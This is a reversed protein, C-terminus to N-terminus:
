SDIRLPTRQMHRVNKIYIDSLVVLQFKSICSRAPNVFHCIPKTTRTFIIDTRMLKRNCFVLSRDTRLLIQVIKSTVDSLVSSNRSSQGQINIEIRQQNWPLLLMADTGGLGVSLCCMKQSDSLHYNQLAIALAIAVSDLPGLHVLDSSYAM